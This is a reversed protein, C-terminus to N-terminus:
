KLKFFNNKFAEAAKEMLEPTSAAVAPNNWSDVAQLITAVDGEFKIIEKGDKALNIDKKVTITRYNENLGTEIKLVKSTKDVVMGKLSSFIYSTHWMWSVNTMGKMASLEGIADSLNNNRKEDVGVAFSISKYTNKPINNLTISERKNAPYTYQGEQVAVESTEEILYYANPVEYWSGDLAELKINSIWYRFSDFTYNKGDINYTKNIAFDENGVRNDFILELSSNNTIIEKEKSCSILSLLPAYILLSKLTSKLM